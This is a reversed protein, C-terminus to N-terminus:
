IARFRGEQVMRQLMHLPYGWRTVRREGSDDTVEIRERPLKWGFNELWNLSFMSIHQGLEKGTVWKENYCEQAEMQAQRVAEAIAERTAKDLTM